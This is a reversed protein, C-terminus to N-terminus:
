RWSRIPLSPDVLCSDKGRPGKGFGGELRLAAAYAIMAANDTCLSLPPFCVQVKGSSSLLSRLRSNAAVGGGVVVRSAGLSAAAALTKLALTEM